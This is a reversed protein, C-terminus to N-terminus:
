MIITGTFKPNVESPYITIPRVKRVIDVLAIYDLRWLGKTLKLKVTLDTGAHVNGLPIVKIDSAIPGQEAMVKTEKILSDKVEATIEIGSIEQKPHNMLEKALASNSVFSAFWNGTSKGMYALTQYFLFTPMLTQRSAIVLGKNGGALNNFTLEITEKFALDNSDAASFREVGDYSCLKESCDGEEAKLKQHKWLIKLKLFDEM